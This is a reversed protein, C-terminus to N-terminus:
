LVATGNRIIGHRAVAGSVLGTHVMWANGLTTHDSITLGNINLSRLTSATDTDLAAHTPATIAPDVTYSCNIINMDGLAIGSADEQPVFGFFGDAGTHTDITACNEWTCYDSGVHLPTAFNTYYYGETRANYITCDKVLGASCNDIEVGVDGSNKGVCNTIEFSGLHAAQGLHYNEVIQFVSFPYGTDHYCDRIYIRDMSVNSGTPAWVSFGAIGGNATCGQILVDNCHTGSGDTKVNFNWGHWVLTPSTAVNLTTCDKVTLDEINGAYGSADFNFVYYSGSAPHLNQADVTFGEVLFKRFTLGSGTTNFNVFSPSTSTLKITANYGYLTMLANNGAPLRVPAGVAYTHDPPFYITGGSTACANVAAQIAARDDSAGDGHAGYNMVDVTVGLTPTPTPTVTALRRLIIFRSHRELVRYRRVGHVNVYGAHHRVTLKRGHGRVLDYSQAHKIVRYHLAKPKSAAAASASCIGLLLMLLVLLTGTAASKRYVM